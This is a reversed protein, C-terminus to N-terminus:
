FNRVARLVTLDAHPVFKLVRQGQAAAIRPAALPLTASSM